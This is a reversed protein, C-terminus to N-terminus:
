LEPIESGPDAAQPDSVEGRLREILDRPSSTFVARLLGGGARGSVPPPSDVKPAPDSGAGPPPTVKEEIKAAMTRHGKALGRRM